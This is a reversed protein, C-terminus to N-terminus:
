DRAPRFGVNLMEEVEGDILIVTNRERDVSMARFVIIDIFKEPAFEVFDRSRLSM